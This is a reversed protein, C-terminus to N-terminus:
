DHVIIYVTSLTKGGATLARRAMSAPTERPQSRSAFPDTELARHDAHVAEALADGGPGMTM